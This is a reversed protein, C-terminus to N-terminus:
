FSSNTKLHAQGLELLQIYPIQQADTVVSPKKSTELVESILLDYQQAIQSWTYRQLAIKKMEQGIANLKAQYTHNIQGILSVLDNFYLAKNETTVRNYSVGYSLLPLGLYMAEVLSPNTGGASHGHVYLSANSRLLDLKKQDYIPDLININTHNSYKKKLMVGYDSKDWNGVIVLPMVNTLTFAELIMHVNNEPEIRCVKFAYRSKLFPYTDLDNEEIGVKLTHDAGYEVIRSLTGYREATYDQIAENDSIDIHSYKVALKEAWFLYWKALLNWKDRKWEIGDISIIIKKNTFLRIFPLIWAGAVGLILLVDAFFLSHIISITDYAISQFGNADLPLYTLKAGKYSEKRENQAYKKGSCYVTIDHKQGLDEILHEALTEFGGYNAPVGVTGIIAIKKKVHQHKPM